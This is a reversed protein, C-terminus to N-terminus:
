IQSFGIASKTMLFIIAHLHDNDLTFKPSNIIKYELIPPMHQRQKQYHTLIIM